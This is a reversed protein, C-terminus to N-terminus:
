NILLIMRVNKTFNTSLAEKSKLVSPSYEVHAVTHSPQWSYNTQKGYFLYIFKYETVKFAFAVCNFDETKWIPFYVEISM